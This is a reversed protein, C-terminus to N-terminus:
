AIVGDSSLCNPLANSDALRIDECLGKWDVFLSPDFSKL